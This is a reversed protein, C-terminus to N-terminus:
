FRQIKRFRGSLGILIAVPLRLTRMRPDNGSIAHVATCGDDDFPDSVLEFREGYLKIRKSITFGLARIKACNESPVGRGVHITLDAPPPTLTPKMPVDVNPLIM